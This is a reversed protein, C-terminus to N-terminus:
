YLKQKTWVYGRYTPYGLTFYSNLGNKTGGVYEAAEGISDFEGVLKGNDYQYVKCGNTIRGHTLRDIWELNEVTNNDKNGDKHHVEPLKNPNDIFMLAVLRHLYEKKRKGNDAILNIQYYGDPKKTPKLHRQSLVSWIRGQNSIQYSSYGKIDRWVENRNEM